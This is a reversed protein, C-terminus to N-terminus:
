WFIRTFWFLFLFVFFFFSLTASTFWKFPLRWDHLDLWSILNFCDFKLSNIFWFKNVEPFIFSIIGIICLSFKPLCSISISIPGILLQLIFYTFFKGFLFIFHFIFIEMRSASTKIGVCDIRNKHSMIWNILKYIINKQLM